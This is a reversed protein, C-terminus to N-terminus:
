AQGREANYTELYRDFRGMSEDDFVGNIRKPRDYSFSFKFKGPQDVVLDCTGWREGESRQVEDNMERFLRKVEPTFALESERFGGAADKAIYFGLRDETLGGDEEQIEYNVVIREWADPLDRALATVIARQLNMTTENM